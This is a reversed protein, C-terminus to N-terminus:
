IKIGPPLFTKYKPNKRFFSAVRPYIPVIKWKKEEALDLITTLFSDIFSEDEFNEPINIRTLFLKREQLTYEISVLGKASNAEFQRSFTNDKIEM